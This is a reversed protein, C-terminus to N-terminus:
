EEGVVGVENEALDEVVWADEDWCNGLGCVGVGDEGDDRGGDGGGGDGAGSGLAEQVVGREPRLVGRRCPVGRERSGGLAVEDGQVGM